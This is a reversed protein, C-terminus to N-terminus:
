FANIFAKSNFVTSVIIKADQWYNWNELYEMDYEVRKEMKWLEDTEGRYGNVQAWGTIGPKVYHRVLYNEILQSYQDTHKLMHPRPGVVSMDGALVNFFQPFEDINTKRLFRGLATIRTDNVTAQKVDSENNVRMTRFKLCKFVRNNIGTRQQVFFVPGKSSLKTLLAVIPVLWSMIFLIVLGSFAIDFMRKYFQAPIEDLPIEQPNILVLRGISEMCLKNRFLHQNEPVFRLRVGKSSCLRLFDKCLNTDNYLSLTVFVMQINHESILRELDAVAGLSNRDDERNETVFGVFKYGLVPNSNVLQELAKATGNAGVILLNNIHLGKKRSQKLYYYLFYYFVLKGVLFITTYLLLFVRSYTAPPMVFYGLILAVCFFVTVCHTTRIARNFYGDRLFLNKNSLMFYTIVWALNAYLLNLSYGYFDDFVPLPYIRATLVISANLLISDIFLYLFKLESERSKM